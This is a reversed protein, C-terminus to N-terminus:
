GELAGGAIGFALELYQDARATLRVLGYASLVARKLGAADAHPLASCLRDVLQAVEDLPVEELTRPGLERLRVAPHDGMRVVDDDQWPIEERRLLVIKREQALWYVASSLPARAVTTLKKGGAARNYLGYARTATLPGEVAIIEEMAAMIRPRPTDRPDGLPRPEWALYPELVVPTHASAAEGAAPAPPPEADLWALAQWAAPPQAGLVHLEAGVLDALLAREDLQVRSPPDPWATLVVAAVALGAARAAEVTLRTANLVDPGSRAAIVVPLGLAAALDRVSFRPTLPALLGAPATVLVPRGQEGTRLAAEALAAPDLPAGAHLAAVAPVAALEFAHTRDTGPLADLRALSERGAAAVVHAVARLPDLLAAAVLLEDGGAGTPVIFLGRM